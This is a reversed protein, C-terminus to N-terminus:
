NAMNISDYCSSHIVYKAEAGVFEHDVLLFGGRVFSERCFYCFRATKENFHVLPIVELVGERLKKILNNRNEEYKKGIVVAM